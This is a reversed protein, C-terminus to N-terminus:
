IPLVASIGLLFPILSVPQSTQSAASRPKLLASAEVMRNHVGQPPRFNNVLHPGTSSDTARLDLPFCAVVKTPVLIPDPFVTWIVVEDCNPTTLSGSYRYYRALNTAGMLDQLSVTSQIETDSGKKTVKQLNKSFSEWAKATKGKASDSAQVFFALVAIGEADDLADTLSMNNRTHVIHFEMSYQKGDICHESGPHAAGNGWHFHLSKATYVDPLGNGSLFLGDRLKVYVTKGTNTMEQLKKYNDYGSLTVRGLTSNFIVNTTIIDIPSQRSNGCHGHAIWTSPGCSEEDYCWPGEVAAYCTGSFLLVMTFIVQVGTRTMDDPREEGELRPMGDGKPLRIHGGVSTRCKLAAVHRNEPNPQGNCLLYTPSAEVEVQSWTELLNALEM